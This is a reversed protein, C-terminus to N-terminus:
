KLLIMKKIIINDDIELQYFYTGSSVLQGTDNRGNWSIEYNGIRQYKNELTRILEGISNFILLKVRGSKPLTYKIKTVANFPNPYNQSLNITNPLKEFAGLQGTASNNNHWIWSRIMGENDYYYDDNIGLFLEGNSSSIFYFFERLAFTPSTGIKAILCYKGASPAPFNNTASYPLGNPGMWDNWRDGGYSYSGKSFILLTDGTQIQIGTSTWNKTVDVDIIYNQTVVQQSRISGHFIGLYFVVLVVLSHKPIYM